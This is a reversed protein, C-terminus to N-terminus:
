CILVRVTAHVLDHMGHCKLRKTVHQINQDHSSYSNKLEQKETKTDMAFILQLHIGCITPKFFSPCNDRNHLKTWIKHSAVKQGVHSPQVPTSM